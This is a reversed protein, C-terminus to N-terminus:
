KRRQYALRLAFILVLVYLVALYNFGKKGETATQHPIDIIVQNDGDKKVIELKYEDNSIQYESPEWYHRYYNVDAPSACYYEVNNKSFCYVANMSSRYIRLQDGRVTLNMFGNTKVFKIKYGTIFNGEQDFLLYAYYRSNNEKLWVVITSDSVTAYYISMESLDPMTEFLEFMVMDKEAKVRQDGELVPLRKDGWVIETSAFSISSLIICLLISIFVAPKKMNIVM